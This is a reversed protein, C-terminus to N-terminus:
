DPGIPTYPSDNLLHGIFFPSSWLLLEAVTTEDDRFKGKGGIVGGEDREPNSGRGSVGDEYWGQGVAM